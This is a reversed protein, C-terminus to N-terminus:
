ADSGGHTELRLYVPSSSVEFRRHDTVRIRKGDRDIAEVVAQPLELSVPEGMSWAVIIEDGDRHRLRLARTPPATDLQEVFTSGGLERCLTGLALFSPRRRLSAGDGPDILGYGKAILRWWYVREVLGTALVSLYYRALYDAQTQEDVSVTKGAPSHPGEWLPWNFETVWLRGDCNAGTDAIARMLVAKKAADLGLQLSEPAGRRDVYLLSSVVDFHLGDRRMNLPAAMAYPEFDIAAPGVLEVGDFRRLIESASSALDLYERYSWVGWKSRNIAQGIQFSSGYPTFREALEGVADTWRARDRALERTQPLAFAVTLGRACLERALREESEHHHSWPHLRLLVHAVGLDEIAVLQEEMREHPRLALGMSAWGFEGQNLSAELERYRRRISPAARAVCWAAELHAPLDSLRVVTRSLRGAHQHPQDSLEDWVIRDRSSADRPAEPIHIHARRPKLRSTVASLPARAVKKLRNRLLFSNVFVSFLLRDGSGPRRSDGWYATLFRAQDDRDLIPLRCMDRMRGMLGLRRELRARNPDVLYIKPPGPESATCVLLNGISLDRYRIRGDHLRRAIRAVSDFLERKDIEPFLKQERGAHLARFYHRIEFFDRLQETVFFSPGEPTKSEVLLLPAPTRIGCGVLARAVRWSRAAKSGGLRRKLRATTGQNRFQKVVAEVTGSGTEIEVSYLYNRGWHLTGSAASPDVVRAVARAVDLTAFRQSVEGTFDELDFEFTESTRDPM